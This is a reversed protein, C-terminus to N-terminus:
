IVINVVQDSGQRLMSEMFVRPEIEDLAAIECEMKVLHYGIKELRTKLEPIMSQVFSRIDDNELLFRGTIAKNLISFDARVPGLNTMDLLFSVKINKKEGGAREEKEGGLDFLIQGFNFGSPEMVPFPLLYRGSESTQTNLIQMNEITELFRTGPGTTGAPDTGGFGSLKLAMGKADQNLLNEFNRNLHDTGLTKFFTTLKKEWLMGGTTMLRPLFGEDRKGSKLAMEEIVSSLSSPGGKFMESFRTRNSFFKLLPARTAATEPKGSGLLKLVVSDKAEAVNLRIEEGPILPLHTKVVLEQGKVLLRAHGPGLRAMVKATLNQNEKFEPLSLSHSGQRQVVMESKSIHIGLIM